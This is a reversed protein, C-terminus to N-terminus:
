ASRGRAFFHLATEGVLKLRVRGLAGCREPVAVGARSELVLRGEPALLACGTAGLNELLDPVGPDEYPPDALILRFQAGEGSLIALARSVRLGLIRMRDGAGLALGNRQLVQRTRGDAEVFVATPAGRSLAELGLAGSGAYLDLVAGEVVSDALIDFLTQRVRDQTPRVRGSPSELRRGSWLGGVIRM